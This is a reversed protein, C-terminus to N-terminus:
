IGFLFIHLLDFPDFIKWLRKCITPWVWVKDIEWSLLRSFYITSGISDNCNQQIIFIFYYKQVFFTKEDTCIFLFHKTSLKMALIFLSSVCSFFALLEDYFSTQRLSINFSSYIATFIQLNKQRKNRKKQWVTARNENRDRKLLIRLPLKELGTFKKNSLKMKLFFFIVFNKNLCKMARKEKTPHHTSPFAFMTADFLIFISIEHSLFLFFITFVNINQKEWEMERENTERKKTSWHFKHNIVHEPQKAGDHKKKTLVNWKVKWNSGFIVFTFSSPLCIFNLKM